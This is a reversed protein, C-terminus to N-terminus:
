PIDKEGKEEQVESVKVRALWSFEVRERCWCASQQWWASLM